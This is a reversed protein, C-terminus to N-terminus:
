NKAGDQLKLNEKVKKIQRASLKNWKKPPIMTQGAALVKVNKYKAKIVKWTTDEWEAKNHEILKVGLMPGSVAKGILPWWTSETERDWFVFGDTGNWVKDDHYTYGSLAFTFVKGGITRDYIAGLNALVCYAAMIPEGAVVDNIVEHHTLLKVGYARTENGIHLVLFRASDDYITNAAKLNIYKPNILAQFRERGIGFHFNSDKLISNTINFNWTSDVGGYMYKQGNKTFIKGNELANPFKRQQKKTETNPKLKKTSETASNGCSFFLFFMM